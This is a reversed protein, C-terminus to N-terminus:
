SADKTILTHRGVPVESTMGGVRGVRGREVDRAVSSFVVLMSLVPHTLSPPLLSLSPSPPSFLTLQTVKYNLYKFLVTVFEIFMCQITSFLDPLIIYRGERRM